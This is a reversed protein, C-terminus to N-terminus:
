AIEQRVRPPTTSYAEASLYVTVGPRVPDMRLSVHAILGVGDRLPRSTLAELARDLVQTDLHHQELLAAVRERAAEDDEVYDRIPLYLSYNSPRDTDGEVFAYSSVLPRETFPGSGGVLSCFDRVRELDVGPAAAAARVMDSADAAHHSVYVKVRSRPQEHLDLAFFSFRDLDGRLIAHETATRYAEGLGLRTLAEAVLAPAHERGRVDPNFYVKFQPESGPGLILSYWLAFDSHPDDTLFLDEVAQFRDFSLQYRDALSELVRRTARLNAAPGPREAVTEGLVRLTLAGDEDFAVSFEVPTADDAIDSPWMPPESLPREAAAGLLDGLLHAPIEAPEGLGVVRSLDTLQGTTHDRLSLAAFDM